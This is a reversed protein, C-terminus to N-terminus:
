EDIFVIHQLNTVEPPRTFPLHILVGVSLQVFPLAVGETARQLIHCRFHDVMALMIMLQVHPRKADQEVFQAVPMCREPPILLRDGPVLRSLRDLELRLHRLLILVQDILEQLLIWVLPDGQDLYELVGPDKVELVLEKCIPLRLIAALVLAVLRSRLVLIVFHVAALVIFLVLFFLATILLFGLIM